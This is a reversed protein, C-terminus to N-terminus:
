EIDNWVTWLELFELIEEDDIPYRKRGIGVGEAPPFVPGPIPAVYTYGCIGGLWFGLM